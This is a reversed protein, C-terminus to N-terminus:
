FQPGSLSSSFIFTPYIFYNSSYLRTLVYYSNLSLYSQINYLHHTFGVISSFLRFFTDLYLCSIYIIALKETTLEQLCSQQLNVTVLSICRVYVQKTFTMARVGPTTTFKLFAIKPPLLWGFLFRFLPNNGFPIMTEVVWFISRNHRLM